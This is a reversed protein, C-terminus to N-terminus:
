AGAIMAKGLRELHERQRDNLLHMNVPWEHPWPEQSYISAIFEARNRQAHVAEGGALVAPLGTHVIDTAIKAASAVRVEHGAARCAWALPVVPFLHPRAASSTFLVRM